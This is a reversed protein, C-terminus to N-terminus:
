CYVTLGLIGLALSQMTWIQCDVGSKSDGFQARNLSIVWKEIQIYGFIVITLTGRVSIANQVNQDVTPTGWFDLKVAGALFDDFVGKFPNGLVQM